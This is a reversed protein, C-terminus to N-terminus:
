AFLAAKRVDEGFKEDFERAAIVEPADDGWRKAVAQFGKLHWDCLRLTVKPRGIDDCIVMNNEDKRIVIHELFHDLLARKQGDTLEEWNARDLVIEVDARKDVRQKLPIVSVIGQAPYGDKTVAPTKEGDDDNYAFMICLQVFSKDPLRLYSNPNKPDDHHQELVEAAMQLVSKDYDEARKFSTPM